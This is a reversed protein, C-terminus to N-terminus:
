RKALPCNVFRWAATASSQLRSGVPKVRASKPVSARSDTVGAVSTGEGEEEGEWPAGGSGARDMVAVRVAFPVGLLGGVSEPLAVGVPSAGVTEPMGVKLLLAEVEGRAMGEEVAQVLTDESAEGLERALWVVWAEREEELLAEMLSAGEGVWNPVPRAVAVTLKVPLAGVGVGEEWGVGM